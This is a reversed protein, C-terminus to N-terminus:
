SCKEPCISSVFYTRLTVAITHLIGLIYSIMVYYNEISCQNNGALPRPLVTLEDLPAHPLAVSVQGNQTIKQQDFIWDSTLFHLDNLL